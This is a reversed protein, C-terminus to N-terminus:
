WGQKKVTLRRKGTARDFVQLSCGGSQVDRLVVDRGHLSIRARHAYKSHGVSIQDVDGRWRVAGTSRDLALLATSCSIAQYVTVVIQDGDLLAEAADGYPVGPVRGRLKGDGGYLALKKGDDELVIVAELAGASDEVMAPAEGGRWVVKGTSRDVVAGVGKGHGWFTSFLVHHATMAKPYAEKAAVAQRFSDAIKREGENSLPWDVRPCQAGATTQGVQYTDLNVATGAFTIAGPGAPAVSADGRAAVPFLALAVMAARIVKTQGM